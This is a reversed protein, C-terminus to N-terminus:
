SSLGFVVKVHCDLINMDHFELVHEKYIQMPEAYSQPRM